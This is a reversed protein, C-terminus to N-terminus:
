IRNRSRRDSRRAAAANSPARPSAAQPPLLLAESLVWGVTVTVWVTVLGALLGDVVVSVPGCVLVVAVLVEVVGVASPL